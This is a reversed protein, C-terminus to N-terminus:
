SIVRRRENINTRGFGYGEVGARGREKEEKGAIIVTNIGMKQAKKLHYKVRKDGFELYFPITRDGLFSALKM